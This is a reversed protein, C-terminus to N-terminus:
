KKLAEKLLSIIEGLTRNSSKLTEVTRDLSEAEEEFANNLTNITIDLKENM